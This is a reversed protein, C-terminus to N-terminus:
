PGPPAPPGGRRVVEAALEARNALGTKAFIHGLHTKVTARSVFLRQAIAPNSHGGAVLEAIVLETPTLSAWGSAPRGRTGRGRSAYDIAADLTLGAGERVAARLEPLGVAHAVATRAPRDRLDDARSRRAGLRRRAAGAAAFLRAARAEDGDLASLGALAELTAVADLRYGGDRQAALAAHLLDRGRDRDGGSVAARGLRADSGALLWGDGIAAGAAAARELLPLADAPRDRLLAIDALDLAHQGAVATRRTVEAGRVAAQLYREADDLRGLALASRGLAAQVFMAIFPGRRSLEFTGDLELTERYAGAARGQWCGIEAALATAMAQCVPDGLDAAAQRARGVAAEAAALDGGRLAVITTVVHHWAVFHLSGAREVLPTVDALAQRAPALRSQTTWTHAIHGLAQTLCWTDAAERALDVADTLLSRAREPVRTVDLGGLVTLARAAARTDGHERGMALAANARETALAVDASLFGLYASGWLVRARDGSPGAGEAALSDALFRQGEAFYGRVGFFLGAGAALRLAAAGAGTSRARDLAARLNGREDDLEDLWAGLGGPTGGAFPDRSTLGTAFALLRDHVPGADDLLEAAYQRTTELLRFRRGAPRDEVAVLSRHVLSAVTRVVAQPDLPATGCVRRAGDLSFGGRFVSLRALLLREEDDLLAVSWELSARLTRQRPHGGRSGRILLRLSDDLAHGLEQPTLAPTQAAALEIALPLGDLRACIAAVAGVNTEDLRFEPLASRARDAFLQVADCDAVGADDVPVPMAPVRWVTEGPVVVAERSTALFRLGGPGTLGAAGDLLAALVEAVSELVHECNDLVVLAEHGAAHRRLLEVHGAGPQERLGLAACVAPAVPEDAALRQLDVWCVGDRYEGTLTRAAAIALRTKGSGGPGTVTVLRSRAVLDRLVAVEHRRGIFRTSPVPLRDQVPQSAPPGGCITALLRRLDEPSAPPEAAGLAGGIVSRMRWATKHSVGLEQELRAVTVTGGSAAVHYVAYFWTRLGTSSKAFITGATPSLHRGCSTCTWARRRAATRYRRFTRTRGCSPCPAQDGPGYRVSWLLELCADDDPLARALDAFGNRSRASLDPM